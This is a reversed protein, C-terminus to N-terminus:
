GLKAYPGCDSGPPLEGAIATGSPLQMFQWLWTCPEFWGDPEVSDRHDGHFLLASTVHEREGDDRRQQRRTGGCVGLLCGRGRVSRGPRAALARERLSVRSFRLDAAAVDIVRAGLEAIVRTEVFVAAVDDGTRFAAHRQLGAVPEVVRQLVEAEIGARGRDLAALLARVLEPQRVVADRVRDRVGALGDKGADATGVQRQGAAPDAGTRRAAHGREAGAQVVDVFAVVPIAVSHESAKKEAICPADRQIVLAVLAAARPVPVGREAARRHLQQSGDVIRGVAEIGGHAVLARM